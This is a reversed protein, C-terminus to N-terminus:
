FSEAFVLTKSSVLLFHFPTHQPVKGNVVRRKRKVMGATEVSSSVHRCKGTDLLRLRFSCASHDKEKRKRWCNLEINNVLVEVKSVLRVGIGTFQMDQIKMNKNREARPIRRIRVRPIEAELREEDEDNGM